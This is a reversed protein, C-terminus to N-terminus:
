DTFFTWLFTWCDSHFHGKMSNTFLQGSGLWSARVCAPAVSRLNFCGCVCPKYNLLCIPPFFGKWLTHLHGSRHRSQPSLCLPKHQTIFCTRLFTSGILCLPTVWPSLFTRWSVNIELVVTIKRNNWSQIKFKELLFAWLALWNSSWLSYRDWWIYTVM